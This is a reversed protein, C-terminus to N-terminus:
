KVNVKEKIIYMPRSRAENHIRAIYEGVIGICLLQIGGIFLITTVVATSGNLISSVGFYKSCIVLIILFIAFFLSIIGVFSAIKLPFNSFSLIGDIAFGTMKRISFKTKGYMRQQREYEVGIQKFGVWGVLGRIFRNREKISCLIDVVRRDMLRFDGTDLPIRIEVLLNMLRYFLFATIIKFLTEGNRRVRKAYVVQYGEMWKEIMVAILEPPDQLDADILVVADGETHEIGATIAAQHGFNRSFSIVGVNADKAAVEKLLDLSGDDSGDDIFVIEYTHGCESITNKIREYLVPINSEENLVPAVVSIKHM